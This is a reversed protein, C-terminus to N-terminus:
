KIKNFTYAVWKAIWQHPNQIKLQTQIKAEVHHEQSVFVTSCSKDNLRRRALAMYIENAQNSASRLWSPFNAQITYGSVSCLYNNQITQRIPCTPELPQTCVPSIFLMPFKQLSLIIEMLSYTNYYLLIIICWTAQNPNQLKQSFLFFLDLSGPSFM